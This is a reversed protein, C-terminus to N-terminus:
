RRSSRTGTRRAPASKKERSKMALRITLILLLMCVFFAIGMGKFSKSRLTQRIEWRLLDKM